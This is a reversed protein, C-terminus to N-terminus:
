FKYGFKAGINYQLGSVELDSTNVMLSLGLGTGLTFREGINSNFGLDFGTGVYKGKKINVPSGQDNNGLLVDVNTYALNSGIFFGQNAAKPYYKIGTKISPIRRRINPFGLGLGLIGNLSLDASVTWRKAFANEIGLTITQGSISQDTDTYLGLAETGITLTTNQAAAFFSLLSM